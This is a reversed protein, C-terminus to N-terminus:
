PLRYLKKKSASVSMKVIQLNDVMGSLLKAKDKVVFGVCMEKLKNLDNTQVDKGENHKLYKLVALEAAHWPSEAVADKFLKKTYKYSQLVLKECHDYISKTVESEHIDDCDLLAPAFCLKKINMAIRQTIEYDDERKLQRELM